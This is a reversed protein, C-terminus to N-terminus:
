YSYSPPNAAHTVVYLVVFVGVILGAIFCGKMQRKSDVTGTLLGPKFDTVSSLADTGFIPKGFSDYVTGNPAKYALRRDHPLCCFVCAPILGGLLCCGCSAAKSSSGYYVSSGWVGGPRVGHPPPREGSIELSKRTAETKEESRENLKSGAINGQETKQLESADKEETPEALLMGEEVQDLESYQAM